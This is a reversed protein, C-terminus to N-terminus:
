NLAIVNIALVMVRDGPDAAYCTDKALLIGVEVDAGVIANNSAELRARITIAPASSEDRLKKESIVTLPLSVARAADIIPRCESRRNNDDRMSRQAISRMSPAFYVTLLDIQISLM